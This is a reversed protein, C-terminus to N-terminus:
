IFGDQAWPACVSREGVIRIVARRYADEENKNQLARRLADHKLAFSRMDEADQEFLLIAHSLLFEHLEASSIVNLLMGLHRLCVGQSARYQKQGNTDNFTAALQQIYKEEDTRLLQCVRCTRSNNVLKILADGKKHLRNESKLKQALREAMKSYGVSAGYPSSLSLLQWTHLPCFGTEGAFQIQAQENSSLQYQWHAFFDFATEIIHECAACGRVQLDEATNITEEKNAAIRQIVDVTQKKENVAISEINSATAESTKENLITKHFVELKACVNMINAAATYPNHHTTVKKEKQITIEINQLSEETFINQTKETEIIQLTKQAVTALFAPVKEEALFSALEDELLKLGSQEYLIVDNKTRATLGMRSSVPFLKITDSGTEKMITALVFNIIERQEDVSALDIKNIIFFIRNVYEKITKLFDLEVNTMPTDAGTVFIVADCEPLFNYTTATNATLTSGVGPTDVFEIGYRLFPVPLELKVNKIKKENNPNGKETVYDALESVPVQSPFLSNERNVILKQTPGYKLITIASTLPLVGTPLIEEGIIANMLSSKGRKFQGLVALTFRDEALKAMLERCQNEAKDRNLTILGQRIIRLMEALALRIQAYNRLDKLEPIIENSKMVADANENHEKKKLNNNNKEDM